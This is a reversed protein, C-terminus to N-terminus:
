NIMIPADSGVKVGMCYLRESHVMPVDQFEQIGSNADRVGILLNLPKIFAYRFELM